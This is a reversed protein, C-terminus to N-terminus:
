SFGDNHHSVVVAQGAMRLADDMEKVAPFYLSLYWFKQKPINPGSVAIEMSQDILSPLSIFKEFEIDKQGFLKGNFEIMEKILADQNFSSNSGRWM